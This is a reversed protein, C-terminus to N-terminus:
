RSGDKPDSPCNTSTSASQPEPAHPGDVASPAHPGDVASPAHPGDVASYPAERAKPIYSRDFTDANTDHMVALIEEIPYGTAYRESFFSLIAKRLPNSNAWTQIPQLESLNTILDGTESAALKLIVRLAIDVSDVPAQRELKIENQVSNPDGDDFLEPTLSAELAHIGEHALDELIILANIMDDAIDGNLEIFRKKEPRQRFHLGCECGSKRHGSLSRRRPPRFLCRGPLM